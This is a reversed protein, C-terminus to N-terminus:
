SLNAADISRKREIRHVISGGGFRARTALFFHKNPDGVSSFERESYIISASPKHQLICCYLEIGFAFQTTKNMAGLEHMLRLQCWHEAFASQVGLVCMESAVCVAAGDSVLTHSLGHLRVFFEPLVRHACPAHVAAQMMEVVDYMAEVTASYRGSQPDCLWPGPGCLDSM